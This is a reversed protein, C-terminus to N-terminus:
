SRVDGPVRMRKTGFPSMVAKRDITDHDLRLQLMAFIVQCLITM